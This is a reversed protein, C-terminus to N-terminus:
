WNNFARNFIDETLDKNIQTILSQENAAVEGSFDRYRSFSQEFNLKEADKVTTTYKVKVTVTLRNLAAIPVQNGQTAQVAAPAITYGTIAGEFVGSADPDRVIALRTQSRIRDKLAETFSQSLNAVVLPATNEFFQVNITKMELPITAGNLGYSVKCGNTFILALFLMVTCFIRKFM